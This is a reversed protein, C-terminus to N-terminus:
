TSPGKRPRLAMTGDQLVFWGMGPVRPLAKVGFMKQAAAQRGKLTKARMLPKMTDCAVCAYVIWGEEETRRTARRDDMFRGCYICQYEGSTENVRTKHLVIDEWVQLCIVRRTQQLTSAPIATTLPTNKLLTRLKNEVQIKRVSKPRRGTDEGRIM